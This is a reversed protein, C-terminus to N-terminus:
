RIVGQEQPGYQTISIDESSLHVQLDTGMTELWPKSNSTDVSIGISGKQVTPRGSVDVYVVPNQCHCIGEGAGLSSAPVPTCQHSCQGQLQAQRPSSSWLLAKHLVAKMLQEPHMSDAFYSALCLSLSLESMLIIWSPCTPCGSVGLVM